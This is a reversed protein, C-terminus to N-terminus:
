ANMALLQNLSTNKKGRGCGDIRHHSAASCWVKMWRQRGMEGKRGKEREGKRERMSIM